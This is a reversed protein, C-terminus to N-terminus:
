QIGMIDWKIAMINEHPQEEPNRDFVGKEIETSYLVTGRPRGKAYSPLRDL